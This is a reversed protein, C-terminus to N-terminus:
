AAGELAALRAEHDNIMAQQAAILFLALQDARIGFLNGAEAIMITEIEGTPEGTEPNIVPREETQDEWEDWCLFAYQSDPAIGSTIPDILGEDAMIAWVSQAKVGFHYRANAAGKKAISDNWQFFGLEGVIRKAAALEATTMAGRWTKKREDSTSITSSAAFIVSPRAPAQGISYANDVIPTFHGAASSVYWGGGATTLKLNVSNLSACESTFVKNWQKVSSGFDQALNAGPVVAGVASIRFRETSAAGTKFALEGTSADNTM